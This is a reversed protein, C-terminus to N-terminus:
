NEDDSERFYVTSGVVTAPAFKDEPGKNDDDFSGDFSVAATGSVISYGSPVVIRLARENEYVVAGGTFAALVAANGKAFDDHSDIGPLGLSIVYDKDQNGSFDLTGNSNVKVLYRKGGGTVLVFGHSIHKGTPEVPPPPPPPAASTGQAAAATVGLAQVAPVAWVAAGGVALGRKITTRRSPGAPMADTAPDLVM